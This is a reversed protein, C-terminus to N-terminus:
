KANADPAEADINRREVTFSIAVVWPNAEWSGPGNIETWLSAYSGVPCDVYGVGSGDRYRRWFRLSKDSPAVERTVEEIGEAIADAASIDQLRQVRVDTVTLIIRSFQRFMHMPPVTLRKWAVPWIHLSTKGDALYQVLAGSATITERVYLRDGVHYPLLTLLDAHRFDHWRKEADRFHWDYGPTDSRGFDTFKRYGRLRPMRRTETKGTGPYKIERLLGRVMPSTFPIPKDSM